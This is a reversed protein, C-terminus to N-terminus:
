VSVLSADKRSVFVDEPAAAVNNHNQHRSVDAAFLDISFLIFPHRSFLYITSASDGAESLSQLVLFRSDLSHVIRHSLCLRNDTIVSLRIYVCDM